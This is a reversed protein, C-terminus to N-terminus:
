SSRLFGRSFVECLSRKLLFDPLFGLLFANIFRVISYQPKNVTSCFSNTLENCVLGTKILLIFFM